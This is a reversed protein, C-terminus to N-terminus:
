LYNLVGQDKGEGNLLHRICLSHSLSLTSEPMPKLDVRAHTVWPLHTPTSEPTTLKYDVGAYPGM